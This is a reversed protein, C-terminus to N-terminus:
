VSGRRKRAAAPPLYVPHLRENDADYVNVLYSGVHLKERPKGFTRTVDAQSYFNTDAEDVLVFVARTGSTAGDRYWAKSAEWEFPKLRGQGDSILM